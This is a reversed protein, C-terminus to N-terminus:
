VVRGYLGGVCNKWVVRGDGMMYVVVANRARRVVMEAVEVGKAGMMAEGGWLVEEGARYEVAEM